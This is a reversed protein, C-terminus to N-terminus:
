LECLWVTWTVTISAILIQSNAAVRQPFGYSPDSIQPESFKQMNVINILVQALNESWSQSWFPSSGFWLRNEHYINAKAPAMQPESPLSDAQLVSSPEIEPNPLDGPPPSHCSVGSNRNPFNWPCFPRPAVTWVRCSWLLTLCSQPWVCILSNSFANQLLSTLNVIFTHFARSKM